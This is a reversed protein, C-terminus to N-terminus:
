VKPIVLGNHKVKMSSIEEMKKKGKSNTCKGKGSSNPSPTQFLREAYVRHFNNLDFTVVNLM